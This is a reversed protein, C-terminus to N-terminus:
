RGLEHHIWQSSSDTCICLVPVTNELRMLLAPDLASRPTHLFTLHVSKLSQSAILAHLFAALHPSARVTAGLTDVRSLLCTTAFALAHDPMHHTHLILKKPPPLNGSEVLSGLAVLTSFASIGPRETVLPMSTMAMPRGYKNMADIMLTSLMDTPVACLPRVDFTEVRACAGSVIMSWVLKVADDHCDTVGDCCCLPVSVDCLGPFMGRALSELINYSALTHDHWAWPGTLVLSRLLPYVRRGHLIVASWNTVAANMARGSNMMLRISSLRDLPLCPDLARASSVILRKGSWVPPRAALSRCTMSVRVCDIASAFYGCIEADWLLRVVVEFM